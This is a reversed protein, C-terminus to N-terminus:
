EHSLQQLLREMYELFDISCVLLKEFAAKKDPGILQLKQIIKKYDKGKRHGTGSSRLEQLDRLFSIHTEYEKSGKTKLWEELKAISRMGDKIVIENGIKKENLSDVILKNLSLVQQDFEEQGNSLPIRLNNIIYKDGDDLPIFLPWGFKTEWKSNLTSYYNKFKIDSIEPSSAINLFDKKFSSISIGKETLVNYSKWYLQECEPLRSGLDGLYVMVYDKYDLDISIGWLYGCNLSGNQIAYKDDSLYKHLVEKKFFVPTLYHPEGPNTGFYDSLTNPDSSHTIEEGNEDMGIIYDAYTREKEFPWFGCTRINRPRIIKKGLLRSVTKNESSRIENGSISYYYEDNKIERAFRELNNDKLGGIFTYYIDFYLILAKQKASIYRILYDLRILVNNGDIRVALDCTGDDRLSYYSKDSEEYYLNNLLRFEESLETLDPKIDYFDRQYVLVEKGEEEACNRSYQSNEGEDYQFGPMCYESRIDWSVNRYVDNLHEISILGSSFSADAGNIQTKGAVLIWQEKGYKENIYKENEEQAYLSKLDSM